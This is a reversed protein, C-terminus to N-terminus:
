FGYLRAANRWAIKEQVENSLHGFTQAFVPRSEPWISDGHAFDNGFLLNDPGLINVLSGVLPEQIVVGYFNSAWYESPKKSLGCDHRLNRTEWVEDMRELMYPIWGVGFEGLCFRLRPFRECIGAFILAALQETTAIQFTSWAVARARHFHHEGGSRPPLKSQGGTTHIHVPLDLEEAVAWIPDWSDHWFPECREYRGPITYLLLGRLGNDRARRAESVAYVPNRTTLCALGVFRDPRQRCFDGLWENYIAYCEAVVQNDPCWSELGIPGYLVEARVGDYDQDAVRMVVDTLRRIGKAGDAFIGAAAFADFRPSAGKRFPLGIAGMGNVAMIRADTVFQWGGAITWFSGQPTDEVRPVRDRLEARCNEVFLGTPLWPLDIHSDASILQSVV